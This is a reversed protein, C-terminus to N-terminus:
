PHTMKTLINCPSTSTSICLKCMVDQGKVLSLVSGENDPQLSFEVGLSITSVNMHKVVNKRVNERSETQISGM